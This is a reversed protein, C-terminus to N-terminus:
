RACGPDFVYVTGTPPPGDQDNAVLYGIGNSGTVAAVKAVPIPLLQRKPTSDVDKIVSVPERTVFEVATAAANERALAPIMVTKADIMGMPGVVGANEAVPNLPDNYVEIDLGLNVDIPAAANAVLFQGRIARTQVAPAVGASAGFAFFVAGDTSQAFRRSAGVVGFGPAAVVPGAAPTKSGANDIFYFSDATASSMLLRKGSTVGVPVTNAALPLVTSVLSFPETLPPEVITSPHQTEAPGVLLATGDGRSLLTAVEAGPRDYSVLVSTAAIKTVFPDAPADIYAIPLRSPGPGSAGGRFWVRSGSQVMQGPIFGLGVIPVPPPTGNAVNAVNFAVPGTPTLVFLWPYIAVACNICIIQQGLSFQAVKYKYPTPAGCTKAATDCAAANCSMTRCVDYICSKRALDCKGKLCGHTTKCGDDNECPATDPGTPGTDAGGEVPDHPADELGGADSRRDILAEDLDLSCASAALASLTALGALAALSRARLRPRGRRLDRVRRKM